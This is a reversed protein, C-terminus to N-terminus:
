PKRLVTVPTLRDQGTGDGLQGHLNDGWCVVTKEATIACAHNMGVTIATASQALTM